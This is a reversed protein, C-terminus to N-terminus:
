DEENNRRPVPDFGSSGWPHCKLIRKLALWFGKVAGWEEIAEIAYASCTPTHRCTPGLYSSIAAQYFRIMGTMLWRIAASLSRFMSRLPQAAM